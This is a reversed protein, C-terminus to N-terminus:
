TIALGHTSSFMAIDKIKTARWDKPGGMGEFVNWFLVKFTPPSTEAAAMAALAM